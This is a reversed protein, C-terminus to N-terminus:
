CIKKAFPDKNALFAVLTPGQGNYKTQITEKIDKRYREAIATVDVRVSGNNNVVDTTGTSSSSTSM